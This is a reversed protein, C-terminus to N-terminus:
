EQCGVDPSKIITFIMSVKEMCEFTRSAYRL